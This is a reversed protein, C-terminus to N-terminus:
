HNCASCLLQGDPDKTMSSLPHMQSCGICKSCCVCPFHDDDSDDDSDDGEDREEEEDACPECVLGYVTKKMYNTDFKMGCSNCEVYGDNDDDDGSDVQDEVKGKSSSSSKGQRTAKSAKAKIIRPTKSPTSASKSKSPVKEKTADEAEKSEEVVKAPEATPTFDLSGNSKAKRGRKKNIVSSRGDAQSILTAAATARKFSTLAKLMARPKRRNGNSNNDSNSKDGSMTSQTIALCLCM